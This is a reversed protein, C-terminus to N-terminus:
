SCEPGRLDVDITSIQNELHLWIHVSLQMFALVVSWDLNRRNTSFRSILVCCRLTLGNELLVLVVIDEDRLVPAMVTALMMWVCFHFVMRVTAVVVM